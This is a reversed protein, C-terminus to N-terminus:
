KMVIIDEIRVKFVDAMIMLNDITPLCRGQQWKYIAQPNEFGFVMQLEKVSMNNAKRLRQINKGTKELDVLPM